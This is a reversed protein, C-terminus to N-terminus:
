VLSLLVWSMPVNPMKLTKEKRIYEGFWFSSLDLTSSFRTITYSIGSSMIQKESNLILEAWQKLHADGLDLTREIFASGACGFIIHKINAQKLASLLLPFNETLSTYGNDSVFHAVEM